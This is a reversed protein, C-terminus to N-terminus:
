KTTQASAEDVSKEESVKEETTTTAAESLTEINEVKVVPEVITRKRPLPFVQVGTYPEEVKKNSKKPEVKTQQKVQEKKLTKTKLHLKITVCM